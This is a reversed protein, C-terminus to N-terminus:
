IRAVGTWKKNLTPYMSITAGPPAIALAQPAYVPGTGPYIQPSYPANQMREASFDSYQPYALQCKQDPLHPYYFGKTSSRSFHMMPGRTDYEDNPWSSAPLNSFAEKPVPPRGPFTKTPRYHEPARHEPRTKTPPTPSPAGGSTSRSQAAVSLYTCALGMKTCRECPTCPPSDSTTAETTMCKVKRRRCHVCALCVRKRKTFIALTADPSSRQSM